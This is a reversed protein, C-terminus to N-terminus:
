VCARVRLRAIAGCRCFLLGIGDWRRGCGWGELALADGRTPVRWCPQPSFPAMRRVGVPPRRSEGRIRGPRVHWDRSRLTARRGFACAGAGMGDVGGRGHSASVHLFRLVPPLGVWVCWVSILLGVGCWWGVGGLRALVTFAAHRPGLYLLALAPAGSVFFSPAPRTLSEARERGLESWIPQKM